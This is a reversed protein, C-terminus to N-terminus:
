FNFNVLISDNVFDIGAHNYNFPTNFGFKQGNVVPLNSKKLGLM